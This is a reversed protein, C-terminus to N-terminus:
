ILLCGGHLGLPSAVLDIVALVVVLLTLVILPNLRMRSLDFSHLCSVPHAAHLGFWFLTCHLTSTTATYHLLIYYLLYPLLFFDSHLSAYGIDM